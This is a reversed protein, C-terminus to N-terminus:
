NGRVKTTDLLVSRHLDAWMDAVRDADKEALAKEFKSLTEDTKELIKHQKTEPSDHHKLFYLVIAAIAAIAGFLGSM